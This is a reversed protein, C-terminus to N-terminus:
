LGGMLITSFTTVPTTERIGDLTQRADGVLGKVDQYLTDDSSLLKGLTGEGKELRESVARLNAITQAADRYIQDDKSLLKGLTGEGKELRESVARLNAAVASVDKYLTDDKSLLKGMTGEGKELRDSLAKLNAAVTSVDKYLTEDPSLLKGLTGEGKELRDSITRLNAVTTNINTYITDDRSFLKGLTGEGREVRGLVEALSASAKRLNALTGEDELTRRLGAVVETVDRMLDRPPEGIFLTTDPLPANTGPEIQLHNGGLMSSNVVTIQYGGRMQVRTELLVEVRVHNEPDLSMKKVQGVPVGHVIVKDHARLGGVNGFRVQLRQGNGRLLDSGSIIITFFALLVLVGAVFLGVLLDGFGSKQKM